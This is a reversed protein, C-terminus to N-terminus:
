VTEKDELIDTNGVFGEKMGLSFINWFSVLIYVVHGILPGWVGYFVEDARPCTWSPTVYGGFWSM